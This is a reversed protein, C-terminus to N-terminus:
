TYHQNANFLISMPLGRAREIYDQRVANPDSESDCGRRKQTIDVHFAVDVSGAAALEKLLSRKARIYNGMLALRM